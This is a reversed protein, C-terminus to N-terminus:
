GAGAAEEEGGGGWAGGSGGVGNNVWRGGRAGSSRAEIAATATPLPACRRGLWSITHKALRLLARGRSSRAVVVVM